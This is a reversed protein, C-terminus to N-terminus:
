KKPEFSKCDTCAKESPDCEHSGIRIRDLSCYDACCCHNKCNKITCAIHKNAYETDM